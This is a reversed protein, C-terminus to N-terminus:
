RSDKCTDPYKVAISGTVKIRDVYVCYVEYGSNALAHMTVFQAHSKKPELLRLTTGYGKTGVTSTGIRRSYWTIEITLGEDEDDDPCSDSVDLNVVYSGPNAPVGAYDRITVEVAKTDCHGSANARVSGFMLLVSLAFFSKIMFMKVSIESHRKVATECRM